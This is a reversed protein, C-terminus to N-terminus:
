LQSHPRKSIANGLIMTNKQSGGLLIFLHMQVVFQENHFKWGKNRLALATVQNPTAQSTLPLDCVQRM